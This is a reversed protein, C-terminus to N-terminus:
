GEVPRYAFVLEFALAVGTRDYSEAELRVDEFAPRSQLTKIFKSQAEKTRAEGALRLRTQRERGAMQANRPRLSIIRVDDPLLEGLDDLLRGWHTEFATQIEHFQTVKKRYEKIDIADLERVLRENRAAIDAQSATLADIRQHSSANERRLSQWYVLATLVGALLLLNLCWLLVLAGHGFQFPAPSFNLRTRM